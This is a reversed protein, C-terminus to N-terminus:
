STNELRNKRLHRPRPRSPKASGGCKKECNNRNNFGGTYCGTVSTCGSRPGSWFWKVFNAKCKGKRPVSWCLPPLREKKKGDNIGCVQNCKHQTAFTYAKENCYGRKIPKCTTSNASFYWREMIKGCKGKSEETFNPEKCKAPLGKKAAIPPAFATACIVFLLVRM